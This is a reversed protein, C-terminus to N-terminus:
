RSVPSIDYREHWCVKIKTSNIATEIKCVCLYSFKQKHIFISNLYQLIKLKHETTKHVRIIRTFGM